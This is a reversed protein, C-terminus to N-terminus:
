VIADSLVVAGFGDHLEDNHLARIDEPHRRLPAIASEPLM